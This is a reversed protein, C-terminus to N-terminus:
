GGLGRPPRLGPGARPRLTYADRQPERVPITVGRVRRPPSGPGLLREAKLFAAPTPRTGKPPGAPDGEPQCAQSAGPQAAFLPKNIEGQGTAAKM